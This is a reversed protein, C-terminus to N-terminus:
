YPTLMMITLTLREIEMNRGSDKADKSKTVHFIFM